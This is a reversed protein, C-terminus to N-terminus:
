DLEATQKDAHMLKDLLVFSGFRPCYKRVNQRYIITGLTKKDHKCLNIMAQIQIGWSNAFWSDIKDDIRDASTADPFNLTSFLVGADHEIMMQMPVDRISAELSKIAVTNQRVVASMQQTTLYFQSVVYMSSLVTSIATVTAAVYKIKNILNDVGYPGHM